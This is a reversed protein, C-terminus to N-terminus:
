IKRDLRRARPQEVMDRPRLGFVRDASDHSVILGCCCQVNRGTRGAEHDVPMGPAAGPCEGSHAEDIGALAVFEDGTELSASLVTLAFPTRCLKHLLLVFLVCDM